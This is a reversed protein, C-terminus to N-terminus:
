NEYRESYNKVEKQLEKFEREEQYGEFLNLQHGFHV